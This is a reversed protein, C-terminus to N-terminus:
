KGTSKDDKISILEVDFILTSNPPISNGAGNEGYALQPPVYLQWKSGVSMLQLAETWGKIVGKVSFSVPGDHSASSDFETGDIFTGRYNCVVTDDADPKKGDGAKLIKYQLGDPLAIVGDKAKNAELFAAGQKLTEATKEARLAEQKKNFEDQAAALAARMEVETILTKGGSFADAFGKGFSAPDFTLGQSRFRAGISMGLAYGTKEDLTNFPAPSQASLVTNQTAGAPTAPAAGAPTSQAGAAPTLFAAALILALRNEIAINNKM